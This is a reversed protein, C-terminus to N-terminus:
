YNQWSRKLTRLTAQKSHDVAEDLELANPRM